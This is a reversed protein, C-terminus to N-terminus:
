SFERFGFKAGQIAEENQASATVPAFLFFLTITTVLRKM